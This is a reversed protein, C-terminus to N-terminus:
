AALSSRVPGQASRPGLRAPPELGLSRLCAQLKPGFRLLVDGEDADDIAEAYMLALRRAAAPTGAGAGAGAPLDTAAGELALTVERVLTPRPPPAGDDM